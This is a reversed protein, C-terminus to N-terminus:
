KYKEMTKLIMDYSEKRVSAKILAMLFGVDKNQEDEKDCKVVSKTGNKFKIITAPGNFIVDEIEPVKKKNYEEASKVFGAIDFATDATFSFTRSRPLLGFYDKPTVTLQKVNELIEDEDLHKGNDLFYTIGSYGTVYDKIKEKCIFGVEDEYYITDGKNYKRHIM